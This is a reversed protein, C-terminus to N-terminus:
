DLLDVRIENCGDASNYRVWVVRNKRATWSNRITLANSFKDQDGLYDVEITDYYDTRADLATIMYRTDALTNLMTKLTM